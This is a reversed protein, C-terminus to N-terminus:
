EESELPNKAVQLWFKEISAWTEAFDPFDLPKTIFCNAQLRYATKINSPSSSCTLMVVPIECLKSDGKLETLLEFGNMKPMNIDVVILHPVWGPDSRLSELAQAGDAFTRLEDVWQSRKVALKVLKTDTLSDDVLVVRPKEVRKSEV